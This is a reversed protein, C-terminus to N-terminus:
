SVLEVSSVEIIDPRKKKKPIQGLYKKVAERVADIPVEAKVYEYTGNIEVKWIRM